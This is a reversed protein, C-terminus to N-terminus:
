RGEGNFFMFDRKPIEVFRVGLPALEFTKGSLEVRIPSEMDYNFLAVVETGDPKVTSAFAFQDSDSTPVSKGDIKGWPLGEWKAIEDQAKMMEVLIEGDYCVGSYFAYGRCGNVFAARAFQGIQRPNLVEGPRLYGGSGAIAAMPLYAKKLHRTDNRMALFSSKGIKHYYSCLHGDLWKENALTDKGCARRRARMGKEDGYPMIYDYDICKLTPNYERILRTLLEVSRENHMCRFDAWKDALAPTQTEAAAPVHDLGAFAAFAKHCEECHCWTASQWPEMDFTVWDGDKVGSSSLVGRVFGRLHECLRPDRIFYEPCMKNKVTKASGGGSSVARRAGIKEAAAKGLGCAGFRWVDGFRGSFIYPVPRRECLAALEKQRPFSQGGHATRRFSRIGAAEYARLSVNAVEDSAFHRDANNWSFVPFDKAQRLGSPMPCFALEMSKEQGRKEGLRTRYRLIFTKELREGGAKPGIVLTCSCGRDVDYRAPSMAAYFGARGFTYRIYDIGNTVFPKATPSLREWHGAMPCYADKIELEAPIDIDLKLRKRGKKEGKLFFSVPLPADSFSLMKVTGGNWDKNWEAPLAVVEFPINGKDVGPKATAKIKAFMVPEKNLSLVHLVYRKASKPASITWTLKRWEKAVMPRGSDSVGLSRGSEDLFEMAVGAYGYDGESKVMAEVTWDVFGTLDTTVEKAAGFKMAGSEWAMRIAGVKGKYAKAVWSVTGAAELGPYFKPQWGDRLEGGVVACALVAVSAFLTKKM